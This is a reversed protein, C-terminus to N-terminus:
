RRRRWSLGVLLLLLGLAYGGGSANGTQCACGGSEIWNDGSPNAPDNPDTPSQPDNPDNPNNPDGPPPDQPGSPNKPWPKCAGKSCYQGDPCKVGKCLDVCGGPTDPGCAAPCDLDDAYSYGLPCCGDKKTDDPKKLTHKCQVNCASGSLSDISCVNGDNCDAASKCKGAGAKIGPDCVEGQELVGNGCSKLCDNDVKSTAKPPCCGDGHKFALVPTHSCIVSCDKGSPFDNTCANKDNCQATTPCAGTKGPAITKDCKEGPDLIGNGCCSVLSGIKQLAGNLQTPNDAKYYKPSQPLATGGALALSDLETTNVGTGFGVVYTKIGAGHLAKVWDIPKGSCTESGDTVLLVYKKKKPDIGQLYTQANKLSVGLPTLGTPYAATLTAAIANKSSPGVKVNVQGGDCSSGAPHKPFLMLGFRIQVQYSAVLNNIATKAHAWKSQSGSSSSMSGSHDLVVLMDPPDGCNPQAHAATAITGAILVAILSLVIRRM